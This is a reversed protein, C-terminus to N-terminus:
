MEVPEVRICRAQDARLAILADRIRYATPDGTPSVMEAQIVTGPLIGLDMMRRREQGRIRPSLSVVKGPTGLDLDDLPIGCPEEEAEDVLPLVRIKAAVIPALIHEEDDVWFRVRQSNVETMRVRMGPYLGEARIQAAVAEPEDGVHIIRGNQNVAMNSLPEGSLELIEGEKTPIPDGHPDFTPNGLSKALEEIEEPTLTHEYHDAQSHWEEEEFGTHEALYQEWLRHARIINLAMQSGDATLRLIQGEYNLLGRKELKTFISVVHDRNVDLAGAISEMTANRGDLNQKQIHKLAHEELVRATVRRVERWRYVRGWGPWFLVVLILLIFVSAILLIIPEPM